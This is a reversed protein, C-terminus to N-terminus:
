SNGLLLLAQLPPIKKDDAKKADRRGVLVRKTLM